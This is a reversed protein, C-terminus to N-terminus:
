VMEIYARARHRIQEYKGSIEQVALTGKHEGPSCSHCLGSRKKKKKIVRRGGLDVSDEEDAADSTYLLCNYLRRLTTEDGLAKCNKVLKIVSFVEVAAFLGILFGQVFSAADPNTYASAPFGSLDVAIAALGVLATALYLRNQHKIEKKIREIKKDLVVGGRENNKTM